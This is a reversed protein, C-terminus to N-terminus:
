SCGSGVGALSTVAVWVPPNGMSAEPQASYWTDGHAVTNVNGYVTSNAYM